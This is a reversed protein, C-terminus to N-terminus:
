SPSVCTVVFPYKLNRCAALHMLTLAMNSVVNRITEIPLLDLFFERHYLSAAASGHYM